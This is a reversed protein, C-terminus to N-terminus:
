RCPPVRTRWPTPKAPSGAVWGCGAPYTQPQRRVTQTTQRIAASVYELAGKGFYMVAVLISVEGAIRLMFPVLSKLYENDPPSLMALIYNPGLTYVSVSLAVVLFLVLFQRRPTWTKKWYERGSVVYGLALFFPSSLNGYGPLGGIHEM